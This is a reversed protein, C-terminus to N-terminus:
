KGKLAYVAGGIVITGLLAYLIWDKIGKDSKLELLGKILKNYEDLLQALIATKNDQEKQAAEYVEKATNLKAKEDKCNWLCIGNFGSLGEACPVGSLSSIAAKLDNIAKSAAIYQEDLQQNEYKIQATAADYQGREAAAAKAPSNAFVKGLLAAAGAVVGAVVAVVTGVGPIVAAVAAVTAAGTAVVNATKSFDSQVTIPKNPIAADAAAVLNSVNTATTTVSAATVTGLGRLSKAPMYPRYIPAQFSRLGTDIFKVEGDAHSRTPVMEIITAKM